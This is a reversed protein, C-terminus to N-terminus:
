VSLKLKNVLYQHAKVFLERLSEKDCYEPVEELKVWKYETHEESLTIQCSSDTLRALHYTCEKDAGHAKYYLKEVFDNELKYCSQSLGSEEKTERLAADMISEGPDLRGKPPTWHYPKDSARLLLFKIDNSSSATTYIIIGAAKFVTM